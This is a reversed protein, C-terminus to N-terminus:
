YVEEPDYYHNFGGCLQASLGHECRDNAQALLEDLDAQTFGPCNYHNHNVARYNHAEHVEYYDCFGPNGKVDERFDPFWDDDETQAMYNAIDYCTRVDEVTAHKYPSGTLKTCHGCTITTM